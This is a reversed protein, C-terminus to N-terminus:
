ITSGKIRNLIKKIKSGTRNQFFSLRNKIQVEKGVRVHLHFNNRELWVTKREAQKQFDSSTLFTVTFLVEATNLDM